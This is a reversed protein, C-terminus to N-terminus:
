QNEQAPPTKDIAGNADLFAIIRDYLAGVSSMENVHVAGRQNAIQILKVVQILDQISLSPAETQQIEESM